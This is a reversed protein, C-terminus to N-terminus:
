DVYTKRELPCGIREVVGRSRKRVTRAGSRVVL